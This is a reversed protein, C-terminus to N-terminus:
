SAPRSQSRSVWFSAASHPAAASAQPVTGLAGPNGPLARTPAAHPMCVQFHLMWRSFVARSHSQCGVPAHSHSTANSDHSAPQSQSMSQPTQPQSRHSPQWFLSTSGLWGHGHSGPHAGTLGTIGSGSGSGCLSSSV